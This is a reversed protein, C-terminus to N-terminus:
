EVSLDLRQNKLKSTIYGSNTSEDVKISQLSNYRDKMGKMVKIKLHGRKSNFRDKEPVVLTSYSDDMQEIDTKIYSSKM